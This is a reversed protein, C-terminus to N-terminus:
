PLRPHLDMSPPSISAAMATSPRVLRNPLRV